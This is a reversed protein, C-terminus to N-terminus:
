SGGVESLGSWGVRLSKRTSQDECGAIRDGIPDLAQYDTTKTAEIRTYRLRESFTQWVAEDWSGEPLYELLNAKAEERFADLTMEGRGTAVIRHLPEALKHRHLQFLAPLLKRTSLDGTGGFIVLDVMQSM